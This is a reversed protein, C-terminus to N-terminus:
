LVPSPFCVCQSLVPHYKQSTLKYKTRQANKGGVNALLPTLSRTNISVLLLLQKFVIERETQKIDAKVSLRFECVLNNSTELTPHLYFLKKPSCLPNYLSIPFVNGSAPQNRWCGPDSGQLPLVRHFRGGWSVTATHPSLSLPIRNDLSGTRASDQANLWGFLIVVAVEFPGHSSAM